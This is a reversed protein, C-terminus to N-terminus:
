TGKAKIKYSSKGRIDAVYLLLPLTSGKLFAYLNLYSVDAHQTTDPSVSDNLRCRIKCFELKPTYSVSWISHDLLLPTPTYHQLEVREKEGGVSVEFELIVYTLRCIVTGDNFKTNYALWASCRSAHSRQSLYLAREYCGM